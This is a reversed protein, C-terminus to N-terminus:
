RAIAYCFQKPFTTFSIQIKRNIREVRWPGRELSNRLVGELLSDDKVINTIQVFLGKSINGM